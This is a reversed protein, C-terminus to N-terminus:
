VIGPCIYVAGGGVCWQCQNQAPVDGQCALPSWLRLGCRSSLASEEGQERLASSPLVPCFLLLCSPQHSRSERNRSEPSARVQAIPPHPDSCDSSLPSRLRGRLLKAKASSPATPATSSGTGPWTSRSRGRLARRAGSNGEPPGSPDELVADQGWRERNDVGKGLSGALPDKRRIM